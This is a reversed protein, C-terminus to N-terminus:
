LATAEIRDVLDQISFPKRLFASGRELRRALEPAASIILVPVARLSERKSMETLLGNGDLVPMMLDTILVDPLRLDLKSLAEKGDRATDVEYGEDVLIDRLAFLLDVEDDVLLIRKSREM